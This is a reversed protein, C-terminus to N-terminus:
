GPHEITAGASQAKIWRCFANAWPRRRHRSELDRRGIPQNDHTTILLDKTDLTLQLKELRDCSGDLLYEVACEPTSVKLGVLILTKCPRAEAELDSQLLKRISWIAHDCLQSPLSRIRPRCAWTVVAPPRGLTMASACALNRLHVQLLQESNQSPVM